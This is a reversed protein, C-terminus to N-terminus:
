YPRLRRGFRPVWSLELVEGSLKGRVLPGIAACRTEVIKQGPATQGKQLQLSVESRAVGYGASEITEVIIKPPLGQIHAEHTAINVAVQDAEPLQSLQRELGAACSACHMGTVPITLQNDTAASM